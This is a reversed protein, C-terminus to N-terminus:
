YRRFLLNDFYLVLGDHDSSRLPTTPDNGLDRAADANGRGFELGRTRFDLRSSTLAHDLTQASGRFIFSYREEEPLSEVQNLLNPDVLDEGSRLAQSPDVDGQIQGLVDVYGDSFEFANFDGVVILGNRRRQKQIAQVKEAISQAQALRKVQVRESDIGGLSRNHVVMVSIPLLGYTRAHLVLPPRDHVLDLQGSEPDIFTEDKGLQEVRPFLVRFRRVLFGVDISGIDNGEVLFAEYRAHPNLANIEAALDELVKLSEVEQVGLIDPTRLTDVVYLSLKALKTAYAESSLVEDEDEDIVEGLGNESAPDDIDDFLRFLNLSGVTTEFLRARRVPEPLERPNVTLDTPWLEYDRFEYGLVGIASFTSGAPIAQNPQDLLRDPDLEFLEPNGDWVPLGPIGPFEIGPERFARNGAATVEVEALPDTGFSLNPSTVTGHEVAIRMGEYCEFEIACSATTPDPSPTAADFVVPAPLSYGAGTVVIDPSTLETFDFFEVVDATVNVLDGVAVTPADGTFVFVGDSTDVDNDSRDTPTQIFFGEPAIATVINGETIVRQDVFPSAAGSGQIAFIELPGVPPRPLPDPCEADAAVNPEGPTICRLSLDANNQDSDAGDPFRSIGTFPTSGDALGIGSGETFPAVTNGEYSVVDALSAGDFLAVADPGGNQIFNTNPGDDLDCNPVTEANACVVFYDGPALVVAPLAITDYTSGGNGNIFNLSYTSLDIGEAGKNLLEVFEAADAGPQDYDIENIVLPSTALPDDCDDSTELNAEGPSICRVSFDANNLNSDAGDPIRSLGAFPATSDFLGDGSGETYPAVTNGEYSVTDVVSMAGRVLAVADPGGNQILNTDPGGDLNCNATTVFNACVVFFDGPLLTMVPLAVTRYVSGNSGNVFEIQYEGLNAPIGGANFIEVFEATDTGAQDYDLENIVLVPDPTTGDGFVQEANVAGFSSAMAPSWSFDGAASGSGVLQLSETALTASSESVGIDTSTLGDAPGGSATFSGEYSLFQVVTGTPDVLAVGDPAGNQIGNSPYSIVATGFGGQQDPITGALEDNDYVSGNSGNYLVIRWGTLPTGAPGAVEIAENQDTGANDYHLENIFLQANAVPVAILWILAALNALLGSSRVINPTGQPVYRETEQNKITKVRFSGLM